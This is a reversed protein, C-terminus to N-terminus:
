HTIMGDQFRALPMIRPPTGKDDDKTLYGTCEMDGSTADSLALPSSSNGELISCLKLLKKHHEHSETVHQWIKKCSAEFQAEWVEGTNCVGCRYPVCKGPTPPEMKIRHMPNAKCFLDCSCFKKGKRKSEPPPLVVPFHTDNCSTVSTTSPVDATVAVIDSGHTNPESPVVEGVASRTKTSKNSSDSGSPRVLVNKPLPISGGPQSAVHAEIVEFSQNCVLCVCFHDSARAGEMLLGVVVKFAKWWPCNSTGPVKIHLRRFGLYDMNLFEEISWERFLRARKTPKVESSESADAAVLADYIESFNRKRRGPRRPLLPDGEGQEACGLSLCPQKVPRGDASDDDIIEAKVHVLSFPRKVPTPTCRVARLIAQSGGELFDCLNDQAHRPTLCPAGSDNVQAHADVVEADAFEGAQEEEVAAGNEALEEEAVTGNASGASGEETAPDEECAAAISIDVPREETAPDECAAAISIDVPEAKDAVGAPSNKPVDEPDDLSAADGDAVDEEAPQEEEGEEGELFAQLDVNMASNQSLEQSAPVSEPPNEVADKTEAYIDKPSKYSQLYGSGLEPLEGFVWVSLSM